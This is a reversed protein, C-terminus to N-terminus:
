PTYTDPDSRQDVIALVRVRKGMIRYHVSMPFDRIPRSHLDSHLTPAGNPYDAVFSLAEHLRLTFARAANPSRRAYWAFIRRRDHRAERSLSVKM